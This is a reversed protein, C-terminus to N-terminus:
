DSRPTNSQKSHLAKPLKPNIFFARLLFDRVTHHLYNHVFFMFWVGVGPYYKVLPRPSLLGDAISTVVSSLDEMAIKMFVVFQQNIDEIYEKGYAELLDPPLASLLQHKKEKWFEPDCTSGTKFYGPFIVSVKVGWPELECRFSEMILSLAAKSAGYAALCPFPIIGAPSSVTVIRGRSARLLPLLGKTMELAGFFNVEMCARFKSLPTLDADAIVDNFGANNVLGWLGTRETQAKIFHLTRQIDEPKTLDLELLTLQSSCNQRLEQAGPGNLDLVSAYVKLGLSDLHSATAKGFGSDCGTVLVAKGAAPIRRGRAAGGLLLWCAAGALGAGLPLPLLRLSAALLPLVALGARLLLRRAQLLDCRLLRHALWCLFCLWLSHSCAWGLEM